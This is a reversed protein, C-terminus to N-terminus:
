NMKGPIAGGARGIAEQVPRAAEAGGLRAAAEDTGGVGESGFPRGSTVSRRLAM